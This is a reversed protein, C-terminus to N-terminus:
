FIEVLQWDLLGKSSRALFFYCLKSCSACELWNTTWFYGGSNKWEFCKAWLWIYLQLKPIVTFFSASLPSRRPGLALFSFGLMLPANCMGLSAPVGCGPMMAACRFCSCCALDSSESPSLTATSESTGAPPHATGSPLPSAADSSSTSGKAKSCRVLSRTDDVDSRSVHALEAHERAAVATLRPVQAGALGAQLVSHMSAGTNVAHTFLAHCRPKIVGGALWTDLWFL